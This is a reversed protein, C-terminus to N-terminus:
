PTTSTLFTPDVAAVKATLFAHMCFLLNQLQSCELEKTEIAISDPEQFHLKLRSKGDDSSGRLQSFKYRWAIEGIGEYSLTFGQTWELTLGASRSNFTVPFTKSKLYTVASCIATHWAAEVRLLEQRTEVSLYRPPKGPSQALFCHQREDVNESERMVRFMTQYVKFTLACRSWDGINCPPTEFLLLDPGKLALFRPRYSQWPQNSNSVAENVWGMYEIREGVGFNRNYLKMQLHTLGTINDTIYKLWQSLIASDDCHIVGTRAGNLGRVEFANRRLKDTGFIYRTVYAMMLPVTIVDVWRKYQMSSSSANSSQRSHSCRPSGGQRNPSIWGDEATGNAVNDLKEEKENKQLFPKAARYHKVTLVVIDGANRLINVADDHNCATIYEGNVKIIADGVFLQGCQDAAQGKYIRSILVPLKHEAGGKISLGLGGVKQRTIQVMREKADLPPKNHNAAELDERQLKLVEMSLHLRMPIPKSKGDSVTVMGTRVQRVTFKMPIIFRTSQARLSFLQRSFILQLHVLAPGSFELDLVYSESTVADEVEILVKSQDRLTFFMLNSLGNRYIIPVMGRYCESIGYNTLLYRFTHSTNKFKDHYRWDQLLTQVRELPMLVAEITGAINAALVKALVDNKTLLCLRQKCGEYTSFMLSLSLTKQCLPPLIGRYLLQIGEQSIQGIAARMPVGELIQRFIIKNIPFTVTVNIVAAGWGCIFENFDDRRIKLVSYLSLKQSTVNNM